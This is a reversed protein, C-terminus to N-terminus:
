RLIELLNIFTKYIKKGDVNVGEIQWIAACRALFFLTDLSVAIIRASVCCGTLAPQVLQACTM